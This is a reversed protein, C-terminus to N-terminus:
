GNDSDGLVSALETWDKSKNKIIRKAEKKLTIQNDNIVFVGLDIFDNVWGELVETEALRLFQSITIPNNFEFLFSLTRQIASWIKKNYVPIPKLNIDLEQIFMNILKHTENSYIKRHFETIFIYSYIKNKRKLGIETKKTFRIRTDNPEIGIQGIKSFEVGNELKITTLSLTSNQIKSFSDLDESNVALLVMPQNLEEEQLRDEYHYPILLLDASSAEEVRKIGKAFIFRLQDFLNSTTYIKVM